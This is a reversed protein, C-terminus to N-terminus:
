GVSSTAFRSLTPLHIRLLRAGDPTLGSIWCSGHSWKSVDSEFEHMETDSAGAIRLLRRLVALSEVPTTPSLVTKCDEAICHVSWGRNDIANVLIKM